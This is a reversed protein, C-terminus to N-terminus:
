ACWVFRTARDIAVFVDGRHKGLCTLAKLDIHILGCRAEEFQGVARAPGQKVLRNVGLRVLCRHIASRSFTRGLDSRNMVEVLDDLSLGVRTRLEVIIEEHLPSTSQGLHHRRHSGDLVRDAKRWKYVTQVSVGLERSLAPGSKGSRQIYARVAPTTRANAHLKIDMELGGSSM